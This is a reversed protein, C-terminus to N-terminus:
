EFPSTHLNQFTLKFRLTMVEIQMHSCSKFCYCGKSCFICIKDDDDLYYSNYNCMKVLPPLVWLNIVTTKPETTSDHGQLKYYPVTSYSFYFFIQNIVVKLLILTM